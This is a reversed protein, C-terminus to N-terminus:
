TGNDVGKEAYNEKKRNQDVNQDVATDGKELATYHANM